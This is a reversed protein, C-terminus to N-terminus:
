KVCMCRYQTFGQMTITLNAEQLLDTQAALIFNPDIATACPQLFHCEAILRVSHICQM